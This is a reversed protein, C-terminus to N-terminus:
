NCLFEGKYNLKTTQSYLATFKSSLSIKRSVAIHFAHQSHIIEILALTRNLRKDTLENYRLALLLEVLTLKTSKFDWITILFVLFIFYINVLSITVILILIIFHFTRFFVLVLSTPTNSSSVSSSM